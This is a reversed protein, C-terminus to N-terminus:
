SGVHSQFSKVNKMMVTLYASYFQSLYEAVRSVLAVSWLSWYIFVSSYHMTGYIVEILYM